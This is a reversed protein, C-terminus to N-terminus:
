IAGSMATRQWTQGAYLTLMVYPSPNIHCDRYRKKSASRERHGSCLEEYLAIKPLRHDEMRSAHGALRLQYKLPIAEIGPIEAQDRIEVNTVFYSSHINVIKCLCRQHLRERLRIHSRYTVWTMLGYLFTALVVARYVLSKRKNM